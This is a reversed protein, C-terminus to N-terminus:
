KFSKHGNWVFLVTSLPGFVILFLTWLIKNLIGATGSRWVMRILKFLIIFYIISLPALAINLGYENLSFLRIIANSLIFTNTEILTIVQFATILIKM